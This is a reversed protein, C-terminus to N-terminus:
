SNTVAISNVVDLIKARTRRSTGPFWEANIVLRQGHVDLIWLRDIQNPWHAFGIDGMWWTYYKQETGDRNTEPDCHKFEDRNKSLDAPVRLQMSRGPYGALTVDLAARAGRQESLVEVLQDVSTGPDRMRGDWRCPDAAVRDVSWFSVATRGPGLVALADLSRWGDPVDFSVFLDGLSLWYRGAILRRDIGSVFEHSLPGPLSVPSPVSDRPAPKAQDRYTGIVAAAVLASVLLGVVLSAIRDNRRKRDRRRLLREHAPEPVSARDAVRELIRRTDSM